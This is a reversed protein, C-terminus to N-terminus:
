WSQLFAIRDLDKLYKEYIGQLQKFTEPSFKTGTQTSDNNSVSKNRSINNEDGYDLVTNDVNLNVNDQPLTSRLNRNDTTGSQNAKTTTNSTNALMKDFNEYLATMEQEHMLLYSVIQSAWAEITQYMFQRNLFKNVFARKFMTDLAKNKFSFNIFFKLTVIKDVDSDYNMAKKIFAFEDEGFTLQNDNFFENKGARILESQIVDM